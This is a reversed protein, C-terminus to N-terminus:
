HVPDDGLCLGLPLCERDPDHGLVLRPGRLPQQRLADAADLLRVANEGVIVMGNKEIVMLPENAGEALPIAPREVDIMHIDSRHPAPAFPIRSAAFTHLCLALRIERGFRILEGDGIPIEFIKGSRREDHQVAPLERIRRRSPGTPSAITEPVVAIEAGVPVMHLMAILRHQLLRSNGLRPLAPRHLHLDAAIDM